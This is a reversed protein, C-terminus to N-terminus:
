AHSTRPSSVISGHGASMSSPRSSRSPDGRGADSFVLTTLGDPGRPLPDDGLEAYQSTIRTLRSASVRFTRTLRDSIDRGDPSATARITLRQEGVSLDPLAVRVDEFAKAQVTVATMPLTDSTVTFTVADGPELATGYARVH